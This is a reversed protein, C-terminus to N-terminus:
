KSPGSDAVDDQMRRLIGIYRDVLEEGGEKFRRLAFRTVNMDKPKDVVLSPVSAKSMIAKAITEPDTNNALLQDIAKARQNEGYMKTKELEMLNEFGKRYEENKIFNFSDLSDKVLSLTAKRFDPKQKGMTKKFDARCTDYVEEMGGVAHLQKKMSAVMVTRLMIYEVYEVEGFAAEYSITRAHGYVEQFDVKGEDNVSFEGRTKIIKTIRAPSLFEKAKICLVKNVLAEAIEGGFAVSVALIIMSIALLVSTKKTKMDTQETQRTTRTKNPTHFYGLLYPSIEAM